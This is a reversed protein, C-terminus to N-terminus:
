QGGFAVRVGVRAALPLAPFGFVSEYDQDLVNELIAYAELRRHLRYGGSLDIKRYGAALGRNPLLLASGFFQDTLFTSDDWAGSVYGTAAVHGRPRTYIASFSGSHTPRRFPREGVLPSFAGIPIGPFAPNFSVSASFAKTVEADLYTYSGTLRVTDAVAAEVSTEVGHARYSQSNVYAGFPTASVVEPPVGARPLTTRSLFEILDVFTNRFYAVRARIRGYGIGQEVGVDVSRSREPGISEVGAAAPTGKVLALLSSQEQFVSPAKIGTGANVVLKTDGIGRSSPQRLYSALSVRPTVAEGFAANHDVGLGASVHHRATVAGRVEVFAGGNHRTATPDADPDTYGQERDFRGGGSISWTTTLQHTADGALAVRTTRQRFVSPYRGAFDLIARGSATYGNAGRLTVPRGLYNGFLLDGTPSRNVHQLTQDFVGFRVATQWRDTWQSRAAAGAYTREAKQASDDPIGYLRFGNPSGFRTDARRVTGSLDTGGGLAVGFRGAYTGNRYANNPVDNDTRLRSYASYYDFRRAAGGIGADAAFTGLNGGDAGYTVEPVRTRGRRTTIAIVGALADSGYMVSNTQRLVEIRDVGTTSIQGLDVFGGIENAPVGDVLLKNFNGAGGRVFLSATGGRAGTQGVQSGPVLRLAEILDTKGTAELAARDIVTVPAGTQSQPIDAAAATVVIAQRLPGVQLTVNVVQRAGAGVFVPESAYADFGPATVRVQYRGAAIADVRYGGDADTMTTAAPRGDSAVVVTAGPVRAGLPDLVIGSLSASQQASACIPFLVLVCLLVCRLSIHM